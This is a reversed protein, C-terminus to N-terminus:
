AARVEPASDDAAGAVDPAAAPLQVLARCARQLTAHTIDAAARTRSQDSSEDAEERRRRELQRAFIV